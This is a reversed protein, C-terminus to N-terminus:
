EPPANSVQLTTNSVIILLRIRIVCKPLLFIFTQRNGRTGRTYIAMSTSRGQPNQHKCHRRAARRLLGLGRTIYLGPRTKADPCLPKQAGFGEIAVLFGACRESQLTHHRSHFVARAQISCRMEAPLISASPGVDTCSGYFL